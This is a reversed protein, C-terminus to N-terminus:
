NVYSRDVSWAGVYEGDLRSLTLKLTYTYEKKKGEGIITQTLEPAIILDFRPSGPALMRVTSSEVLVEKIKDYIDRVLINEDYTNNVIDGLVLRPKESSSTIELFGNSMLVKRTAEDAMQIFQNMGIRRGEVGSSRGAEVERASVPSIPTSLFLGAAAILVATRALNRGM